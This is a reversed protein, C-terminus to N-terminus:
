DFYDDSARGPLGGLGPSRPMGPSTQWNDVPPKGPQFPPLTFQDYAALAGVARRHLLLRMM